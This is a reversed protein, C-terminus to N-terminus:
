PNVDPAPGPFKDYVGGDTFATMDSTNTCGNGLTAADLDVSYRGDAVMSAIVWAQRAIPSASDGDALNLYLWGAPETDLIDHPFIEHDAISTISTAPLSIGPPPICTPVIQCGRSPMGEGNEDEDFAVFETVVLKGNKRYEACTAASGTAGELWIKFRTEFSGVTGNIWRVAFTSPLPQRADANPRSANQYRRYFTNPLNTRFRGLRREGIARIHVMPNAQAFHQDSNLQQYDGILANDFRIDSTFYEPDLANASGCNGVVDITAYGVAEQHPNGATLCGRPGQPVGAVTGETFATQLRAIHFDPIVEPLRGCEREDLRPNSESFEGQPSVWTGMGHRGSTPIRGNWIVDYLDIAQVDYGTLYINFTFVPYSFDTWLTVRALQAVNTVNTVTFLTTAWPRHESVEFYPLLLTAAPALGVDCSDDNRVTAGLASSAIFLLLALRKM